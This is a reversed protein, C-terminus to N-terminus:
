PTGRGELPVMQPSGGGDDSISVDATLPGQQTPTFTVKIHCYGGSPVSNGCNNKQAFDGADSGTISIGTGTFNVPATGENELTIYKPPSTTNVPQNGFNLSTPTLQVFTGTGVLPVKQPSGPANDTISISGGLPGKTTPKFTVNATCTSRPALTEGCDTRIGFQGSIKASKIELIGLGTNILTLKQPPSTTYVIQTAFTLSTPSFMVAPLVGVGTLSASQPSNPANDSVSVAANRTGTTTPKFTAAISCSGNPPLSGPCNNRQSFDGSNTGTVQISSITLNINGTNQLTVNQPTSPIDVTQNGFNLGTPSLLAIAGQVVQYLVSSTSPAFNTDGNYTATITHTGVTLTSITLTAVGNSNLNSNGINTGGDFFNVTGTPTGKYFGLQGTVTATFTVAQEFNSPNQSSTLATSTPTLSTNILVGVSGDTEYGRNAVMLDPKGDGNIDAVAVSRAYFGGSAYSAAIQFTGDGNGLLVGVTGNTCSDGGSPGCNAVVLDPKGDGNVDGVAVWVAASGGSEYTAASQFTGDGKGLLVGVTGNTYDGSVFESAVLLDPKGDANVDAVAVSTAYYGGSQYTVASQFTGDGNGLLVDVVGNPCASSSACLNAVVLDPKGDGNVDAVAVSNANYGGSDYAVATQFTGDGNGLLVGISGDVGGSGCNNNACDNAVVLDPKGDGNIDAVAVSSADFGGSAYSAAIQFTGDGNGLLVGVTGNTCSNGGSPGCNAVVLDPKGDGNVDAVAVSGAGYSGSDYIVAPQFTGDGNGLLVGLKGDGSENGCSGGAACYNAVVLDPKGDGNVDAAVVSFAETGGSDYVVAPAFSLGSQMPLAGRRLTTAKVAGARRQPFRAGQSMQSLNLPMGRQAEQAVPGGNTQDVLSARNSQALLVVSVLVTFFSAFRLSRM